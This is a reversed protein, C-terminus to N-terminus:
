SSPTASVPSEIGLRAQASTSLASNPIPTHTVQVSHSYSDIRIHPELACKVAAFIEIESLECALAFRITDLGISRLVREVIAGPQHVIQDMSHNHFGVILLPKLDVPDCLLFPVSKENIAQVVEFNLSANSVTLIDALRPRPWVIYRECM